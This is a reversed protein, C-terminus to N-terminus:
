SYLSRICISDCFRAIVVATSGGPIFVVSFSSRLLYSSGSSFIVYEVFGSLKIFLLRGIYLCASDKLGSSAYLDCIMLAPFLLLCVGADRFRSNM